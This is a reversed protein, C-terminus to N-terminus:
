VTAGAAVPQASTVGPWRALQDNWLQQVLPDRGGDVVDDFSLVQDKPVDRRLV